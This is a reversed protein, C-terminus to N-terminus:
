APFDGVKTRTAEEIQSRAEQFQDVLQTLLIHFVKLGELKAAEPETAELDRDKLQLRHCTAFWAGEVGHLRHVVLELGCFEAVWVTPIRDEQKQGQSYSSRDKWEM